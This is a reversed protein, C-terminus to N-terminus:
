HPVVSEQANPDVREILTKAVKGSPNFPKNPVSAPSFVFDEKAVHDLHELSAGHQFSISGELLFIGFPAASEASVGTFYNLGQKGKFPDGGHIVSYQKM